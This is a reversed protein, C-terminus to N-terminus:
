FNFVVILLFGIICGIIKKVFLKDDKYIFYVFFINIFLSLLGFIFSKVGIINVM